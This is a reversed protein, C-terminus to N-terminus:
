SITYKKLFKVPQYSEKAKKLSPIGLNQEYNIFRVGKQELFKAIEHKMVTYVGVYDTNAKEFHILGYGDHTIENISFAILKKGDYMGISFCNSGGAIGLLRRIATKEIETDKDSAQKNEQWLLFLEIIESQLSPDSLNLPVVIVSPYHKHFRNLFNRKGRLKNGSFSVLKEVSLIYDHNEEDERVSYGHSFDKMSEVVEQPILKLANPLKENELYLFLEELTALLMNRGIFSLFQNGTLYDTFKVVLNDHLLSVEIMEKTNYSWLSNFNYDSYSQFQFIYREIDQKMVLSLRVFNPFIPIM